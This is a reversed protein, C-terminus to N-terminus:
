GATLGTSDSRGPDSSGDRGRGAPCRGPRRLGGARGARRRGDLGGARGSRARLSAARSIRRSRASPLWRHTLWVLQSGTGPGRAAVRNRTGDGNRTTGTGPGLSAADGNHARGASSAADGSARGAREGCPRVIGAPPDSPPFSFRCRNRGRNLAHYVLGDDIARPLRGMIGLM